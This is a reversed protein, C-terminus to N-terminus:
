FKFLTSAAYKFMMTKVVKVFEDKIKGITPRPVIHEDVDCIQPFAATLFRASVLPAAFAVRVSWDTCLQRRLGKAGTAAKVQPQYLRALSRKLSRRRRHCGVRRRHSGLYRAQSRHSAQVAVAEAISM